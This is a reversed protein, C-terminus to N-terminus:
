AFAIAQQEWVFLKGKGLGKDKDLPPRGAKPLLPWNEDSQGRFCWSVGGRPRLCALIKLIGFIADLHDKRERAASSHEMSM